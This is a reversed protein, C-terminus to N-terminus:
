KKKFFNIYNDINNVYFIKNENKENNENNYKEKNNIVYFMSNNNQNLLLNHKENSSKESTFIKKKNFLDWGYIIGDGGSSYFYKRNNDYAISLVPYILKQENLTHRHCKFNYNNEPQNIFEVSIRGQDCGLIFCYDDILFEMSTIESNKLNHQKEFYPKNGNRIDYISLFEENSIILFNGKVISQMAQYKLNYSNAIFDNKNIDIIYYNKKDDLGILSNEEFPFLDIIYKNELNLPFTKSINKSLSSINFEGYLNTSFVYNDNNKLFSCSIISLSLKTNPEFFEFKYNIKNNILDYIKLNGDWSSGAIFKNSSSLCINSISDSFSLIEKEINNSNSSFM